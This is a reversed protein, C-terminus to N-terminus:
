TLSIINGQIFHEKEEKKRVAILDKILNIENREIDINNDDILYELMMESAEEHSWQLSPRYVNYKRM